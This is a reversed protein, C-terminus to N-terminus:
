RAHGGSVAQMGYLSGRASYLGSNSSIQFPDSSM